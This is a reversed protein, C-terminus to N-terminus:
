QKQYGSTYMSSSRPIAHKPLYQTYPQVRQTCLSTMCTLGLNILLYYIILGHIFTVYWRWQRGDYGNDLSVFYFLNEMQKSEIKALELKILEVFM